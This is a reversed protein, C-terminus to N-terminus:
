LSKILYDVAEAVRFLEEEGLIFLPYFFHGYCMSCRAVEFLARVQKPVSESLRPKLIRRLLDDSIVTEVTKQGTSKCFVRFAPDAQLWNESTITKFGLEEM